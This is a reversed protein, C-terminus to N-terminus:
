RGIVVGSLAWFTLKGVKAFYFLFVFAITVFIQIRGSWDNMFALRGPKRKKPAPPCESVIEIDHQNLLNNAAQIANWTIKADARNRLWVNRNWDLYLFIIGAGVWVPFEAATVFGLVAALLAWTAFTFRWDFHRRADWRRTGFDALKMCADFKEKPSM